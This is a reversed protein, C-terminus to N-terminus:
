FLCVCFVKGTNNMEFIRDNNTILCFDIQLRIMFNKYKFWKKDTFGRVDQCFGFPWSKFYAFSTSASEKM